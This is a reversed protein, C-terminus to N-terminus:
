LLVLWARAHSHGGPSAWLRNQSSCAVQIVFGNCTLMYSYGM